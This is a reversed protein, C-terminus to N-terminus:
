TLESSGKCRAKVGVGGIQVNVHLVNYSLSNGRSSRGAWRLSFVSFVNSHFPIAFSFRNLM